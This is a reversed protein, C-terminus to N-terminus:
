ENKKNEKKIKDLLDELTEEFWYLKKAMEEIAEPELTEDCYDGIKRYGGHKYKGIYLIDGYQNVTTLRNNLM